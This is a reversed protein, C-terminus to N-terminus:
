GCSFSVTSDDEKQYIKENNKNEKKKKIGLPYTKFIIKVYMFLFNQLLFSFSHYEFKVM